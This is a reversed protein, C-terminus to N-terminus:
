VQSDSKLSNQVEALFARGVMALEKKSLNVINKKFIIEGTRKKWFREENAYANEAKKYEGEGHPVFPLQEDLGVWIDPCEM